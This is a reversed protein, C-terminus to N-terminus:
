KLDIIQFNNSARDIEAGQAQTTKNISALGFFLVFLVILKLIIVGATRQATKKSFSHFRRYNNYSSTYTGSKDRPSHQSFVLAPEKVAASFLVKLREKFSKKHNLNKISEIISFVWFLILLILVLNLFFSFERILRSTASVSATDAALINAIPFVFVGIIALILIKLECKM